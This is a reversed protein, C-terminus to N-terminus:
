RAAEIQAHLGIGRSALAYRVEELARAVRGRVHPSCVAVLRFGSGCSQLVVHVRAGSSDVSFSARRVQQAPHLFARELKRALPSRAARRDGHAVVPAPAQSPPKAPTAVRAKTARSADMAPAAARARARSPLAQTAEPSADHYAGSALHLASYWAQSLARRDLAAIPASIINFALPQTTM